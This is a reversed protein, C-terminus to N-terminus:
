PQWEPATGIIGTSYIQSPGNDSLSMIMLKNQGNEEESFVIWKGDSSFSPWDDGVNNDTLEKANKGDSGVIFIENGNFFSSNKALRRFVITKGDPSWKPRDDLKSFTIQVEGSGDPHAKYLNFGNRDSTFAIWQGDPSYSPASDNGKASPLFRHIQKTSLDIIYIHSYPVENSVFAIQKGDPSWVPGWKDAPSDTLQSKNSGDSDMTCIEHHSSQKCAYM